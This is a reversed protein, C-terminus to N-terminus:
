VQSEWNRVWIMKIQRCFNCKVRQLTLPCLSITIRHVVSLKIINFGTTSSCTGQNRETSHLLIYNRRYNRPGSIYFETTFITSQRLQNYVLTAVLWKVTEGIENSPSRGHTTASFNWETVIHFGEEHYHLNM